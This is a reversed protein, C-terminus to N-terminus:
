SIRDMERSRDCGGLEARHTAQLTAQPERRAADGRETDFTRARDRTATPPRRPRARKWGPMCVCLCVVRAGVLRLTGGRAVARGRRRAAAPLMATAQLANVASSSVAARATTPSSPIGTSPPLPPTSWAARDPPLRAALRNPRRPKALGQKRKEAAPEAAAPGARWQMMSCRALEKMCALSCSCMLLAADAWRAVHLPPPHGARFSRPDRRHGRRRRFAGENLERRARGRRGGGIGCRTSDLGGGQCSRRRGCQKALARLAELGADPVGPVEPLGCWGRPLAMPAKGSMRRSCVERACKRSRVESWCVEGPRTRRDVGRAGARVTNERACVFRGIM